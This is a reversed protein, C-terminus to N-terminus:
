MPKLPYFLKFCVRQLETILLCGPYLGYHKLLYQFLWSSSLHKSNASKFVAAKVACYTRPPASLDKARGVELHRLASDITDKSLPTTWTGFQL